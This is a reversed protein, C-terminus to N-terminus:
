EKEMYKSWLVKCLKRSLILTMVVLVEIESWKKGRDISIQFCNNSSNINSFSFYTEVRLLAFEYGTSTPEFEMPPNVNTRLRLGQGTVILYKEEGPRTYEVM